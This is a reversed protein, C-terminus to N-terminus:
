AGHSDQPSRDKIPANWRLKDELLGFFALPARRAFRVPREHRVVSIRAGGPLEEIIRGDAELNAHTSEGDCTIEITSTNPVVLPRSFLTHPLLAVIGLAALDPTMIPGGASLSYGTSGTPTAILIGDAPVHAAEQGDVFIGFPTLRASGSRRVVVENLALHAHEGHRAVLATREDIVFGDRLMAFLVDLKGGEIETLFGLRGTNIGCLPIGHLLAIKAARLLTGDGGITVLLVADEVHAGATSLDLVRDQDECLAISFGLKRVERATEIATARAHDRELDVFLAVTGTKPTVVIM